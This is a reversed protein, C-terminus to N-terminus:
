AAERSYNKLLGGLRERPRISQAGLAEQSVLLM